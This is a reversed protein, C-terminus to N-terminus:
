GFLWHGLLRSPILTFIGAIALAGTILARVAARHKAHQHRRATLVIRPAQILTLASLIHIWSLSAGNLGRVWFSLLATLMMSSVWVWGTVRHAYDGRKRLLMVPTLALAVAITLVHAWVITPVRSWDSSGRVLALAVVALLGGAIASLAWDLPQPALPSRPRDTAITALASGWFWTVSGTRIGGKSFTQL